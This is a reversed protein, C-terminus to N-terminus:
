INKKVSDLRVQHLILLSVPTGKPGRIHLVAEELSMGSASEGDIKLIIDGARIGAKAAPSDSIPAIIMLQEDRIGVYAGIGEFKGKLSSLSMQYADPDLYSTYPDDLAEVMGKIAAQSMKGTDLRDRDVYDEFIIDWVEKVVGLGLDISPTANTGLACGAGFSLALSVALLLTIVMIKMRKLM